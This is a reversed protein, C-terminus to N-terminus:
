QLTGNGEEAARLTKKPKEIRKQHQSQIWAKNM